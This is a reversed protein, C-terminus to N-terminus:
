RQVGSAGDGRGAAAAKDAEEKARRAAEVQDAIAQAREKLHEERELYPVGRQLWGPMGLDRLYHDFFERM